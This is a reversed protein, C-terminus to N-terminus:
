SKLFEINIERLTDITNSFIAKFYIIKSEGLAAAWQDSTIAELTTKNMGEIDAAATNWQEGDFILWTEKNDFSVSILVNGDSDLTVQTIGTINPSDHLDIKNTILTQPSTVAKMYAKMSILNEVVEGEQHRWLLIKPNTLTKIQEWVPRENFLGYNLFLDSSLSNTNLNKLEGSKLSYTTNDDQILYYYDELITYTIEIYTAKDIGEKACSMGWNVRYSYENNNKIYLGYNPYTGEHWEKVLNTIDWDTWTGVAPPSVNAALYTGTTPPQTNWTMTKYDWDATVRAINTTGSGAADNWSRCYGKLKASNIIANPPIISIDHQLFTRYIWDNSGQIECSNAGWIRNSYYRDATQAKIEEARVVHTGGTPIDSCDDLEFDSFVYTSTVGDLVYGFDLAAYIRTNKANFFKIVYQEDIDSAQTNFYQSYALNANWLAGEIDSPETTRIFAFAYNSGYTGIQFGTPSHFKFRFQYFHNPQVDLPIYIREFEGAGQYQLTNVGNEYTNEFVPYSEMNKIWNNLNYYQENLINAM